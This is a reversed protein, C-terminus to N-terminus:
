LLVGCLVGACRHGFEAHGDSGDGDCRPLAPAVREGVCERERRVDAREAGACHRGGRRRCRCLGCRRRRRDFIAGDGAWLREGDEHPIARAGAREPPLFRTHVRRRVTESAAFEFRPDQWQHPRQLQLNSSHQRIQPVRHRRVAVAHVGWPQHGRSPSRNSNLSKM